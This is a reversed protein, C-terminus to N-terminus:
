EKIFVLTNKTSHRSSYHYNYAQFKKIGEIDEILNMALYRVMSGRCAKAETAKQVLKDNKLCAFICTIMQNENKIYPEIVKSYEKSALNIIIEDENIFNYIKDGWYTYLSQESNLKIQAQMELRYPIVGDLPRLVGYLASIIFLHKNVYEIAELTFVNPSINKYQIGDYSFLAPTLNKDLSLSHLREINEKVISDSCNWILKLQDYNQRKLFNRIEEAQNIFIPISPQYLTELNEIMKKAPSIIIKM